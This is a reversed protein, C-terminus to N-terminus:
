DFGSEAPTGTEILLRIAEVREATDPHTSWWDSEPMDHTSALEELFWVLGEPDYGARTALAAGMRDAELEDERSYALGLLMDGQQVMDEIVPGFDGFILSTLLETGTRRYFQYLAHGELVHAIEHGIVGAIADADDFEEVLADTLVITGGPMAFANPGIGPMRRHELRYEGFRSAEAEVSVREFIHGVRARQDTSLRSPEALVGDIMALQGDDISRTLTEPTLAVAIAVLAGVGWSWAAYGAVALLPVLLALRPRPAEWRHLWAFAGTRLIGDLGAHDPTEFLWGDPFRIESPLSGLRPERRLESSAAQTLTAGTQLDLLRVAQGDGAKVLRAPHRRSAGRRYAVGALPGTPWEFQPASM